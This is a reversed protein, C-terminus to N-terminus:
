LPTSHLGNVAIFKRFTITRHVPVESSLAVLRLRQIEADNVPIPLIQFIDMTIEIHKYGREAADQVIDSFKFDMFSTIGSGKDFVSTIAEINIPTIGFRM